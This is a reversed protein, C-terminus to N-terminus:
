LGAGEGGVVMWRGWQLACVFLPPGGRSGGWWASGSLTLATYQDVVVNFISTVVGNITLCVYATNGAALSVSSASTLSAANPRCGFPYQPYAFPVLAGRSGVLALALLCQLLLGRAM